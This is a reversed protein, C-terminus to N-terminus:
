EDNQFDLWTDEGLLCLKFTDKINEILTEKPAHM